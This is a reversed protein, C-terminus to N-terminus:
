SPVEIIEIRPEEGQEPSTPRDLDNINRCIGEAIELPLGCSVQDRDGCLVVRGVIDSDPVLQGPKFNVPLNKYRGDEDIWAAIVPHLPIIELTAGRFLMKLEDWGSTPNYRPNARPFFAVKALECPDAIVCYSDNTPTPM